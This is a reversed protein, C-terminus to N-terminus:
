STILKSSKASSLVALKWAECFLPSSNFFYFVVNCDRPRSWNQEWVRKNEVAFERTKLERSASSSRERQFLHVGTSIRRWYTVMIARNEIEAISRNLTRSFWRLRKHLLFVKSRLLVTELLSSSCEIGNLDSATSFATSVRLLTFPTFSIRYLSCM